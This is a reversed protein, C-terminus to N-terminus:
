RDLCLKMSAARSPLWVSCNGTMVTFVSNRALLACLEEVAEMVEKAITIVTHKM